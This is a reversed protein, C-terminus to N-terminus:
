TGVINKTFCYFFMVTKMESGFSVASSGLGGLFEPLFYSKGELLTRDNYSTNLIKEKLVEIESEPLCESGDLNFFSSPLAFLIFIGISIWILFKM